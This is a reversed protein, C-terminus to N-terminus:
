DDRETYERSLVKDNIDAAIRACLANSTADPLFEHLRLLTFFRISDLLANADEGEKIRPRFEEIPFTQAVVLAASLNEATAKAAIIDVIYRAGVTPATAVKVDPMQALRDALCSRIPPLIASDGALRLRIIVDTGRTGQALASSAVTMLAVLAIATTTAVLRSRRRSREKGPAASFGFQDVIRFRDRGM